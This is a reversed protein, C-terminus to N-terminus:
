FVKSLELMPPAPGGGSKYIPPAPGGRAGRTGVGICYMEPQNNSLFLSCHSIPILDISALIVCVVLGITLIVLVIPNNLLIGIGRLCGDQFTSYTNDSQMPKVLPRPGKIRGRM